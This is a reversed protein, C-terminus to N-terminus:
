TKIIFNIVVYPQLNNHPQSGGQPYTDSWLTRPNNGDTRFFGVGRSGAGWGGKVGHSHSPMEAVTLTHTATGGTKGLHSFDASTPSLGVGVRGRNDPLAFYDGSGGYTRGIAQYLRPYDSIRVQRGDCILWGEPAVTGAFATVVGAPVGSGTKKPRPNLAYLRRSATIVLVRDGVDDAGFLASVPVSPEGPGGDFRVLLPNRSTIVAWRFSPILRTKESLHALTDVLFGVDSM